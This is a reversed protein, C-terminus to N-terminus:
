MRVMGWESYGDPDEHRQSTLFLFRHTEIPFFHVVLVESMNPTTADKDDADFCKVRLAFLRM